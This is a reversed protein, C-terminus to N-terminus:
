RPSVGKVVLAERVKAAAMQMTYAEDDSTARARYDSFGSRKLFQALAIAESETLNLTISTDSMTTDTNLQVIAGSAASSDITAADGKPRGRLLTAESKNRPKAMGRRGFLNGCEGWHALGAASEVANRGQWRSGARAARLRPSPPPEAALPGRRPCEILVAPLKWPHPKRPQTATTAM